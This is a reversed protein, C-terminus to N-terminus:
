QNNMKLLQFILQMPIINLSDYYNFINSANEWKILSSERWEGRQPVDVPPFNQNTQQNYRARVLYHKDDNTVFSIRVNLEDNPIRLKPDIFWRQIQGQQLKQQIEDVTAFHPLGCQM